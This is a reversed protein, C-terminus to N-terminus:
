SIQAARHKQEADLDAMERGIREAVANARKKSILGRDCLRDIWTIVVLHTLSGDSVGSPAKTPNLKKSFAETADMVASSFKIMEDVDDGENESM